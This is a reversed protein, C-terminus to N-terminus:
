LQVRKRKKGEAIRAKIKEEDMGEEEYFMALREADNQRKIYGLAALNYSIRNKEQSLADRLHKRLALLSTRMVRNAVIQHHHTRLVFFLIRSVLVIKWNQGVNFSGVSSIVYYLRLRSSVKQAWLDLYVMLSVVKSFPLVLLADQLATGPIKGVVRLVYAEPELDYAALTPDRPPPQLKVGGGGGGAEGSGMRALSEHYERFTLREADALDLAEIIQEGAM